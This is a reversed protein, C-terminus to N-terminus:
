FAMLSLAGFIRSTSLRREQMGGDTLTDTIVVGKWAGQPLPIWHVSVRKYMDAKIGPYIAIYLIHTQRGYMNFVKTQSVTTRSGYM